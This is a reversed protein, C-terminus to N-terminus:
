ITSGAGSALYTITIETQPGPLVDGYFFIYTETAGGVQEELVEWGNPRGFPVPVGDVKVCFPQDNYVDDCAIKASPNHPRSLPGFKQSLGAAAYSLTALSQNFDECISTAVGESLSALEIYRAGWSASGRDAQHCGGEDDEVGAEPPPGVIASISIRGDNGRGKYSEIARYYYQVPGYSEDDEDSVAIVFLAADARIFGDNATPLTPQSIGDWTPGIGLAMTATELGREKPSGWIGVTVMEAFTTQVDPTMPTIFTVDTPAAAHPWAAGQGDFTAKNSVGTRLLGNDAPDTTVVGVHFNVSSSQLQTIFNNFAAGLAAQEQAMSSSNDVVWLIDVSAAVNQSFVDVVEPPRRLVDESCGGAAVLLFALLTGKMYRTNM